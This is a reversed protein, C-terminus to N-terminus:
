LLSDLGIQEHLAGMVRSQLLEDHAKITGSRLLHMEDTTLIFPLSVVTLMASSFAYFLAPIEQNYLTWQYM